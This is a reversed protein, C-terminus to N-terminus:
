IYTPCHDLSTGCADCVGADRQNVLTCAPCERGGSTLPQIEPGRKSKGCMECASVSNKNIYTCTACEWRNTREHNSSRSPPREGNRSPSRRDTEDLSVVLQAKLDFNQQASSVTPPFVLSFVVLCLPFCSENRFDVSLGLNVLFLATNTIANHAM